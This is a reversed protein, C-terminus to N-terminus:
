GEAWNAVKKAINNIINRVGDTSLGHNSYYHTFLYDDPSYNRYSLYELLREKTEPGFTEDQTRLYWQNNM